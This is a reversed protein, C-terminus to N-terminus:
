RGLAHRGIWDVVVGSFPFYVQAISQDTGAVVEAFSLKVPQLHPKIGAFVEQPFHTSFAIPASLCSSAAQEAPVCSRREAVSAM